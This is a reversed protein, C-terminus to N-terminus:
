LKTGTDTKVAKDTVDFKELYRGFFLRTQSVFASLANYVISTVPMLVWQALMFITRHRRYRAPRPPLLKFAWFISVFLALLAIRQLTSIFTPLEHAVISRSAQSNLLLPVWAGFTVIFASIAWTLHSDILRIWQFFTQVFPVHRNKDFLQVAVYPVDSAGYAWRRLQIFQAKLTKLYTDSLVADQDIPLHIPVVAYDGDFHFYSRWYQHGDEVITRVSWFDMESLADMPQSHSAFNRLVHPRMSVTINWFSNGTAIVRMPAPADWINTFYLAIPQFSRHKRFPNVIYEYAVYAFYGPHPRNDADLTTVIVNKYEIGKETLWGALQRGAFTINGGKGVVEHEIDAPHKATLFAAFTDGYERRLREVTEEIAQGGRAEYAICVIIKSLDYNSDILSKITPNLVEYSENYTAVIVAQYLESPKPFLTPEASIRQLNERHLASNWTKNPVQAQLSVSPDELDTLRARWDINKAAILIRSAQSVQVAVVVAKVLLTFVFLLLYIAALLPAFIGLIILLLIAGYSLMAPLREFFRYKPQRKGTPIEIFNKM